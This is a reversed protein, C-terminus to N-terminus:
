KTENIVKRDRKRGNSPTGVADAPLQNWLQISWNVFSYKGIHRKSRNIIQRDHDVRNLSGPRQLTLRARLVVSV